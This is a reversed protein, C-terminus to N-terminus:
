AGGAGAAINAGSLEGSAWLIAHVAGSVGGAAALSRALRQASARYANPAGQLVAQLAKHLADASLTRLPHRFSFGAGCRAVTDANEMQDGFVPVVCLPIGLALAEHVSNCGGHTVFADCLPLLDLQPVSERLVVNPPAPPLGRLADEGNTGLSAIALISQDRAVAEFCARYVYQCFEKGTYETISRAGAPREANQESPRGLPLRWMRQTAVTGLSVLVIRRGADRLERVKDLPLRDSSFSTGLHGDASRSGEVSLTPLGTGDGAIEIRKVKSDVLAGVCRFPFSGFRQIQYEMRPPSYLEAITAVLNLVPSYFERLAGEKLVDVGYTEKIRQRPQRVWPYTEWAALIEAPVSLVGPGAM